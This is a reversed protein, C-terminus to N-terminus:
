SQEQEDQEQWLQETTHFQQYDDDPHDLTYYEKASKPKFINNLIPQFVPHVHDNM